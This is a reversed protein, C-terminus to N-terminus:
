PELNIRLISQPIVTIGHCQMKPSSLICTKETRKIVLWLEDHRLLLEGDIWCITKPHIQTARLGANGQWLVTILTCMLVPISTHAHIDTHWMWRWEQRAASYHALRNNLRRFGLVGYSETWCNGTRKRPLALASLFFSWSLPIQLWSRETVQSM